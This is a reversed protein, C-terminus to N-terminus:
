RALGAVRVRFTGTLEARRMDAPHKSGPFGQTTGYFVLNLRGTVVDGEISEIEVDGGIDILTRARGQPDTWHWDTRYELVGFGTKRPDFFAGGTTHVVLRDHHNPEDANFVTAVPYRGRGKFQPVALTLSAHDRGYRTSSFELSLLPQDPRGQNILSGRLSGTAGVVLRFRNELYNGSTANHEELHLQLSFTNPASRAPTSLNALALGALAVSLRRRSARAPPSPPPQLRFPM